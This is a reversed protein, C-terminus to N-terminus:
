GLHNGGGKSTNPIVGDRRLRRYAERLHKPQLPGTDGYQKRVQISTEVVDGVFLKALGKVAIVYQESAKQLIPNLQVLVKKVKQNTLDSRRYQEYRRLQVPTLKAVQQYEFDRIAALDLPKGEDDSEPEPERIDAPAEKVQSSSAKAKTDKATSEVEKNEDDANPKSEEKIEPKPISQFDVKMPSTEPSSGMKEALNSQTTKLPTIEGPTEGPANNQSQSLAESSGKKTTNDDKSTESDGKTEDRVVKKADKLLNSEDKQSQKPLSDSDNKIQENAEDGRPRKPSTTSHQQETAADERPRKLDPRRSETSRNDDTDLDVVVPESVGTSIRFSASRVPNTEVAAPSSNPSPSGSSIQVAQQSM